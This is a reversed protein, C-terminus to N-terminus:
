MFDCRNNGTLDVPYAFRGTLKTGDVPDQYQVLPTEIKRDMM